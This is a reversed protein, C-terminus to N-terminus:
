EDLLGSTNAAGVGAEYRQLTVTIGGTNGASASGGTYARNLSVDSCASMLLSAALGIATWSSVDMMDRLDIDVM